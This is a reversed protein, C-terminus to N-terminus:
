SQAEHKFQEGGPSNLGPVLPPNQNPADLLPLPSDFGLAQQAKGVPAQEQGALWLPVAVQVLRHANM